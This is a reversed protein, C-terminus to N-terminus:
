FDDVPLERARHFDQSSGQHFLFFVSHIDSGSIVKSHSAVTRRPSTSVQAGVWQTKKGARKIRAISQIARKDSPAGIAADRRAMEIAIPMMAASGKNEVRKGAKTEPPSSLENENWAGIRTSTKSMRSSSSGPADSCHDLIRAQSCSTTRRGALLGNWSRKPFPASFLECLTLCLSQLRLKPREDESNLRDLKKSPIGM